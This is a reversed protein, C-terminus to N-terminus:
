SHREQGLYRKASSQTAGLPECVEESTQDSELAKRLAAEAQALEDKSLEAWERRTARFSKFPVRDGQPVSFTIAYTDPGM